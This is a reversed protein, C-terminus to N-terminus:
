GMGQAVGEDGVGEVGADGPALDLVGRPLGVRPRRTELAASPLREVAGPAVRKRGVQGLSGSVPLRAAPSAMRDFVGPALPRRCIVSAAVETAM